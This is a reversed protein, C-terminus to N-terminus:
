RLDTFGPNPTIALRPARGPRWVGRPMAGTCFPAAVNGRADLAILGGDGGVENVQELVAQVAQELPVGAQVLAAVQRGAGARVFAEGKGTCSVAAHRDAWTGAGIIPTDGVRGLPQGRIGGTSTAAALEGHGDLCVCGVTAAGPQPRQEVIFYAPDMQEVGAAAGLEDAREGIMLVQPSELVARAVASPFRSRTVGAVAGAARDSGRMLGASMEVTGDACRASGRGANLHDAEDEMYAVAAQAADLAAGGDELVAAARALADRLAREWRGPDSRMAGTHEGAGAHIM